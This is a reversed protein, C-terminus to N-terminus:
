LRKEIQTVMIEPRHPTHNGPLELVTTLMEVARNLLPYDIVFTLVSLSSALAYVTIGESAFLDHIRGMLWLNSGHPFVSLTGVPHRVQISPAPELEAAAQAVTQRDAEAVCFSASTQDGSGILGLVSLNVQRKALLDLLAVLVAPSDALEIQALCLSIRIGGIKVPM